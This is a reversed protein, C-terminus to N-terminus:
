LGLEGRVLREAEFWDSQESGQSAGRGIYIEYAKHSVRRYFEEQSVKPKVGVIKAVKDLVKATKSTRGKKEVVGEQKDNM